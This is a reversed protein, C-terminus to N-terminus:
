SHQLKHQCFTLLSGSTAWFIFLVSIKLEYACYKVTLQQSETDKICSDLHGRLSCGTSGVRECYLINLANVSTNSKEIQHKKRQTIVACLVNLTRIEAGVTLWLSNDIASEVGDATIKRKVEPYDEFTSLITLSIILHIWM